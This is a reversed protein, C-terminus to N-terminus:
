RHVREAFALLELRQEPTLVEAVDALAEVLRESANEILALESVRLERIADRDIVPKTLEEVLAERHRRHEDAFPELADYAGVVIAAVREQQDESADVWRTVWEAALEAHERAREPDHGRPGFHGHGGRGWWHGGASALSSTSLAGAILLLALGGAVILGAGIGRRRARDKTGIEHDM